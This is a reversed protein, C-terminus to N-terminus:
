GTRRGRLLQALVQGYMKARTALGLLLGRKEEKMVQSVGALAVDECRWGSRAAHQTIAIEVGYRSQSLGDVALLDARRLARQGNLQPTLRQALTTSLRGGTFTGRSMEARGALVPEALLRVHEVTLGTLDADLLVVFTESVAGAGAALAGGKGRNAALSLVRAGAARGVAATADTSGDDIVLVSGAGAALAVGVVPALNAAEDFAPILVAVDELGAPHRDTGGPPPTGARDQDLPM